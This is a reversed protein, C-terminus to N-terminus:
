VRAPTLQPLGLAARLANGGSGGVGALRLWSLVYAPIASPAVSRAERTKVVLSRLGAVVSELPARAAVPWHGSTLGRIYRTLAAAFAGSEAVILPRATQPSWLYLQRAFTLEAPDAADALTLYRMGAATVHGPVFTFSGGKIATPALDRGPLSMWQSLLGAGTPTQDNVEVRDFRVASLRPYPFPRATLQSTVDEQDWGAGATATADETTAFSRRTGSTQDTFTVRWGGPRHDLAASVADGAQVNFILVPSFHRTTDSWFAYYFDFPPEGPSSLVRREIVGVQIFPAQETSARDESGIWTAAFGAPSSHLLRPVVWAASVSSVKGAWVYGAFAGFSTLRDKPTLPQTPQSPTRVSIDSGSATAPLVIVTRALALAVCLVECVITVAIV